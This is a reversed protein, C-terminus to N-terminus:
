GLGVRHMDDLQAAALIEADMGQPTCFSTIQLEGPMAMADM